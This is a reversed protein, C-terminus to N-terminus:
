QYANFIASPKGTNFCARVGNHNLIIKISDIRRLNLFPHNSFLPTRYLLGPKILYTKISFRYGYLMLRHVVCKLFFPEQSCGFAMEAFIEEPLAAASSLVSIGATM